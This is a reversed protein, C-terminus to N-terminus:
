KNSAGCPGLLAAFLSPGSVNTDPRLRHYRLVKLSAMQAFTQLEEESFGLQVHGLTHRYEDHVHNQMDIILIRGDKNLVRSAEKLVSVTDDIHHLVLCFMAVDFAMDDVPLSTADGEIFTINEPLDPRQRAQTLMAAERDVGVVHKVFPAIITAANGIGCGIDLVKLTPDLLSLLATPTFRQGYMENRLSEWGSSATKFFNRSDTHREALASLLRSDDENAEPLNNLGRSAITWLDGAEEPMADSIRYLGTTGLTRRSVFGTELLLKLHRSATSQPLQLVDSCEGVSLEHSALLRLMRLRACDNIASLSDLLSSPSSVTM